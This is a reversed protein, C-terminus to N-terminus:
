QSSVFSSTGDCSDANDCDNANDHGDTDAHDDLTKEHGKGKDCLPPNAGPSAHGQSAAADSEVFDMFAPRPPCASM